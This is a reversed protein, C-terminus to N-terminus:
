IDFLPPSKTKEYYIVGAELPMKVKSNLTNGTFDVADISYIFLLALM